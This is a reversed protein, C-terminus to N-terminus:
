DAPCSTSVGNCVEQVDCIGVSPRCVAGANGAAHVCSGAANCLDTTCVNGDDPCAGGSNSILVDYRIAHDGANGDGTNDIANVWIQLEDEYCGSAPATYNFAFSLTNGLHRANHTIQGSLVQLAGCNADSAVNCLSLTGSPAGGSTNYAT